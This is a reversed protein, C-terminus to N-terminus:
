KQRRHYFLHSKSRSSHHKMPSSEKVSEVGVGLRINVYPNAAATNKTTDFGSFTTFIKSLISSVPGESTNETTSASPLSNHPDIKKEHGKFHRLDLFADKL